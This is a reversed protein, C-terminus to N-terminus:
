ASLDCLFFFGTFISEHSQKEKLSRQFFISVWLCQQLFHQSTKVSLCQLFTEFALWSDSCYQLNDVALLRQNVNLHQLFYTKRM